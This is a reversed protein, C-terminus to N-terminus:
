LTAIFTLLEVMVTRLSPENTTKFYQGDPMTYFDFDTNLISGLFSIIVTENVKVGIKSYQKEIDKYVTSHIIELLHKGKNFNRRVTHKPIPIGLLIFSIFNYGNDEFWKKAIFLVEVYEKKSLSLIPIGRGLQKSIFFELIQTQATHIVINNLHYNLDDEDLESHEEIFNEIDFKILIYSLESSNKLLRQEMTVFPNVADTDTRISSIPKYTLKFNSTFQYELQKQIVAHFYSVVSRNVELKPIINTLLNRHIDIAVSHNDISINKLYRWIVQDSYLTNDVQVAVYKQLKVGLEIVEGNDDFNFCDIIRGMLELFCDIEKKLNHHKMYSCVLPMTIRAMIASAIIRKAHTNTIQLANQTDKKVPYEIDVKYNEEVFQLIYHVLSENSCIHENILDILPIREELSFENDLIMKNILLYPELIEPVAQLANSLETAFIDITKHFVRRNNLSLVNSGMTRLDKDKTLKDVKIVLSKTALDVDVVSAM